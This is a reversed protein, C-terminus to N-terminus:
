KGLSMWTFTGIAGALMLATLIGAGVRDGTTLDKWPQPTTGSRSGANPDGVSTGGTLNTVPESTGPFEVMLSSVAALVSMAEGAGSTKDISPDYFTGNRWYFGCKRGSTGGVCQKVAAEASNRLVPLLKDRLYPAVQTVVTLWRHVYGKFSLMDTSCAGMRDECAIEFAVNDPSFFDRLLTDVLSTLRFKWVAAETSSNGLSSTYNYMFACGHVLLAANYSFQAKNIDTCNYEVHGGDFVRWDDDAFSRTNTPRDAAEERTASSTPMDGPLPFPMAHKYM